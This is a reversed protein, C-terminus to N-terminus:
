KARDMEYAEIDSRIHEFEIIDLLEPTDMARLEALTGYGAKCLAIFTM